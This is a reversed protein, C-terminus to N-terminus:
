HLQPSQSFSGGAWPPQPLHVAVGMTGHTPGTRLRLSASAPVGFSLLSSNLGLALPLVTIVVVRQAETKEETYRPHSHAVRRYLHPVSNILLSNIVIIHKTCQM